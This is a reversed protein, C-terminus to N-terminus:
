PSKETIGDANRDRTHSLNQERIVVGEVGARGKSSATGHKADIGRRPCLRDHGRAAQEHVGEVHGNCGIPVDQHHVIIGETTSATDDPDVRDRSRLCDHGRAPEEYGSPFRYRVM